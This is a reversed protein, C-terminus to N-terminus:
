VFKMGARYTNNDNKQAWKVIAFRAPIGDRIQDQFTLVHGKELPYCTTMCLGGASIDSCMGSDHVRKLANLDFVPVSYNITKVIQRRIGRRLDEGIDM